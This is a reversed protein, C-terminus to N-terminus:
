TCTIRVVLYGNTTGAGAPTPPNNSASDGAAALPRGWHIGAGSCLSSTYNPAVTVATTGLVGGTVLLAPTGTATATQCGPSPCDPPGVPAGRRHVHATVSTITCSCGGTLTLRVPQCNGDTSAVHAISGTSGTCSGTFAATLGVASAAINTAGSENPCLGLPTRTSLGLQYVVFFSGRACTLAGAPNTVSEVILPATWAAAGVAAARKLMQRRAVRAELSESEM